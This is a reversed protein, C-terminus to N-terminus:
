TEYLTTNVNNKINGLTYTLKYHQFKFLREDAKM